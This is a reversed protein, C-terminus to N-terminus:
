QHGFQKKLIAEAQDRPLSGSKYADRVDEPTKFTSPDVITPTVVNSPTGLPGAGQAAPAPQAQTPAVPDIESPDRGLSTLIDRSKQNLFPINQSKGIGTEYRNRFSQMQSGLLNIAEDINGRLTQPPANVNLRDRWDKIAQISASGKGGYFKALEDALATAATEFRGQAKSSDANVGAAVPNAVNNWWQSGSNHLADISDNLEKLHGIATNGARIANSANGSTFDRLVASRKTLTAADATPDYQQVMAAMRGRQNGQSRFTSLPLRGEAIAKVNAADAPDISQLYDDGTLPNGVPGQAAQPDHIQIYTAEGTAPDVKYNRGTSQDYRTAPPKGVSVPVGAVKVSATQGEQLNELGVTPNGTANRQAENWIGPLEEAVGTGGGPTTSWADVFHQKAEPAATAWSQGQYGPTNAWQAADNSASQGALARTTQAASQQARTTELMARQQELQLAAQQQAQARQSQVMSQAWPSAAASSDPQGINSPQVLDSYDAM